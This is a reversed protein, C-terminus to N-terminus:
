TDKHNANVKNNQAKTKIKVLDILERHGFLGRKLCISESNTTYQSFLYGRVNTYDYYRPTL